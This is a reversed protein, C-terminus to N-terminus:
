RIMGSGLPLASGSAGRTVRLVGAYRTGDDREEPRSRRAAGWGGGGGAEAGLDRDRRETRGGPEPSRAREGLARRGGGHQRGRDAMRLRHGDHRREPETGPMRRRLP